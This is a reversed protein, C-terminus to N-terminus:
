LFYKECIKKGKETLIRGRKTREIYGEFVLYNENMEQISKVDILLYNSITELSVPTNKFNFYMIKLIDMDEETLGFENIGLITFADKVIKLNLVKTKLFVSYDIIRKLLNLAVRPTKRSRKAIEFSTNTDIKFNIKECNDSIIKALEEDKYYEFKLKIGFRDRLPRSISGILTTAGILTFPAVDLNLIKIEEASKFTVNLKYDELVSYLIEELEKDLRHIEDIFLIDGSDLTSIISILDSTDKLSPASVIKIGVELEHSIIYALSTKGLGPAGYLLIHDLCSKRKKASYIFIKLREVISKQGIFSDVNQPRFENNAEKM